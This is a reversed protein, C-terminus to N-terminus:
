LQIIRPLFFRQSVICFVHQLLLMSISAGLASLLAHIWPVASKHVTPATPARELSCLLTLCIANFQSQSPKRSQVVQLWFQLMLLLSTAGEAVAVAAAVLVQQQKKENPATVSLAVSASNSTEHGAMSQLVQERICQQGSEDFDSLNAAGLEEEKHETLSAEQLEQM